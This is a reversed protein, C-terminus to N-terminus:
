ISWFLVIMLIIAVLFAAFTIYAPLGLKVKEYKKTAMKDYGKLIDNWLIKDNIFINIM